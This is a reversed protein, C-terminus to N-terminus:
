IDPPPTLAEIIDTQNFDSLCLLFDREYCFLFLDAVVPACNTVMTISVIQKYLKYFYQGLSTSMKKCSMNYLM